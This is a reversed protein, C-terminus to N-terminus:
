LQSFHSVPKGDGYPPAEKQTDLEMPRSLLTFEVAPTLLATMRPPTMLVVKPHYNHRVKKCELRIM